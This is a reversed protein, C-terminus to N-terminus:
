ATIRVATDQGSNPDPGLLLENELARIVTSRNKNEKEYEIAYEVDIDLERVLELVRGSATTSYSPWPAALRPKEVRFYDAGQQADLLSEASAKQEPTWALRKAQEDTDYASVRRWPDEGEAVGRFGFRDKALEREWLSVGSQQFLAIVPQRTQEVRPGDPGQVLTSAGKLVTKKFAAYKSLYRAM